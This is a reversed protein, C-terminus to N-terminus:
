TTGMGNFNTSDTAQDPTRPKQRPNWGFLVVVVGIWGPSVRVPHM